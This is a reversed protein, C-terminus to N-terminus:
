TWELTESVELMERVLTLLEGLRWSEILTMGLTGLECLM